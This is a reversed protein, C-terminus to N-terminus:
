AGIKPHGHRPRFGTDVCPMLRDKGLTRWVSKSELMLPLVPRGAM